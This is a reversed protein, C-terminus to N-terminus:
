VTYLQPPLRPKAVAVLPNALLIDHHSQALNIRSANPPATWSFSHLLRAFLMVTMTTGLMIGPCGRRGTSFSIFNLDPETLLVNGKLHREPKFKLAEDDWVKSNRGLEQRSLLVHSGKPILYKGVVTDKVSVHPINFPAVPHLRFAERACAKIYNLKPIDSEQVLREKGVIRDLEETAHKLLEPQNIMEALGWEVANSPNDVAAMMLEIIQAKIEQTTLVPNNNADRLSILIDLFDETHIKSGDNWQKIRQEIIPDHYKNVIQLAKKVKNEHGDLDLGRLCPVYDSVSFDYIYKLLVFIAELHEVEEGGPGGDNKGEGFYRMGFSLNKIVNCSYHQAVDRVNVLGVNVNINKKCKNYIYFVLNNAEELRKHQLQHHITTSLLQNCVIRRMKKWQEGLPVLATTLYGGSILSTTISTPRSAFTADQKRLFERAIIPCTVPIVHVNGLRICAIETKMGKMLNNIWRFTPRNALMEPLNGIIPWPIPGPPLPVEENKSKKLFHFGPGKLFTICFIVVIILSSWFNQLQLHYLLFISFHDMPFLLFRQM